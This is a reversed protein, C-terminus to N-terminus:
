ALGKLIQLIALSPSITKHTKRDPFTRKLGDTSLQPVSQRCTGVDM